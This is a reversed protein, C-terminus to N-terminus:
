EAAQERSNLEQQAVCILDKLDDVALKQLDIKLLLDVDPIRPAIANWVKDIEEGILKSLFEEINVAEDVSGPTFPRDDVLSDPSGENREVEPLGDVPIGLEKAISELEEQVSTAPTVSQQSIKEGEPPPDTKELYDPHICISPLMRGDTGLGGTIFIGKRKDLFRIKGTTGEPVGVLDAYASKVCVWDDVAFRAIKGLMEREQIINIVTRYSSETLKLYKAIVRTSWKSNRREIESLNPISQLLSQSRVEDLNELTDLFLEIRKRQDKARLPLGHDTNARCSYLVADVLEGPQLDVYIEKKAAHAASVRHHCDGAYIKGDNSLFAVPLPHRMWDWLEEQMLEAYQQVTAPNAEYLGNVDRSQTGSKLTIWEPKLWQKEPQLTALADRLSPISISSERLHLPQKSPSSPEGTFSDAKSEERSPGKKSESLCATWNLPFGSIAAMMEISLSQSNFILGLKRATRDCKTSGAPRSMKGSSATLTPLSLFAHGISVLESKRQKYSSRIKGLTDLWESDALSQECAAIFSEKQNSLLLSNLYDKLLAVSHKSGYDQNNASYDPAIAPTVQTTAPSDSPTSTPQEQLPTITESIGTSSITGSDLTTASYSYQTTTSKSPSLGNLDGSSNPQMPSDVLERSFDLLELQKGCVTFNERLDEITCEFENDDGFTVTFTGKVESTILGTRLGDDSVYCGVEFSPLQYGDDDNKTVLGDQELQKLAISTAYMPLELAIAIEGDLVPVIRTMLFGLIRKETDSSEKSPLSPLPSARLKGGYADIDETLEQSSVWEPRTWIVENRNGVLVPVKGKQLGNIARNTGVTGKKGQHNGKTIKVPTGAVLKSM